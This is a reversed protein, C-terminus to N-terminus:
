AAPILDPQVQKEIEAQVLNKLEIIKSKLKLLNKYSQNKFTISNLMKTFNEIEVKLSSKSNIKRVYERHLFFFDFTDDISLKSSSDTNEIKVLYVNLVNFLDQNSIIYRM